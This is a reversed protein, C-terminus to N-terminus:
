QAQEIDQQQRLLCYPPAAHRYQHGAAARRGGKEDYFYKSPLRKPSDQLGRLVDNQYIGTTILDSQEGSLTSYKDM